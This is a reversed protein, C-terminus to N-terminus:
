MSRSIELCSNSGPVLEVNFRGSQQTPKVRPTGHLYADPHSLRSRNENLWQM